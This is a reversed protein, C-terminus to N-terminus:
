KPAGGTTGIVLTDLETQQPWWALDATVQPLEADVHFLGRALVGRSSLLCRSPDAADCTWRWVEVHWPNQPGNTGGGRRILLMLSDIQPSGGTVAGGVPRVAILRKDEYYDRIDPLVKVIQQHLAPEDGEWGVAIAPGRTVAAYLASGLLPECTWGGAPDITAILPALSDRTVLGLDDATGSALRVRRPGADHLPAAATFVVRSPYILQDLRQGPKGQQKAPLVVKIDEDPGAVLLATAYLHGHLESGDRLGIVATFERQPYPEGTEVRLTKGAEPMSFARLLQEATPVLRLERVAQPDLDRLTTGDHFRLQGGPAVRVEGDVRSGDSYVVGTDAAVALVSWLFLLLMKM